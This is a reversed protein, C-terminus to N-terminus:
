RGAHFRCVVVEGSGVLGEEGWGVCRLEAKAFHGGLGEELTGGLLNTSM